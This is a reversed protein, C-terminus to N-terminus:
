LSLLLALVAGRACLVLRAEFPAAPLLSLSFHHKWQGMVEGGGLTSM